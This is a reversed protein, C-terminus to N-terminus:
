DHATMEFWQRLLDALTRPLAEINQIVTYFAFPFSDMYKTFSPKGGAFSVSQLELLSDKATDLAIFALLLGPTDQMARVRRRLSEKEHFHGDAIILVLQQLQCQSSSDARQRADDMLAEISHLMEAVPTDKITNDQDFKFQSVLSPGNVDSFPDGLPHISRVNGTEGFSVVGVEGVELRAMARCILTLAEMAFHGCKREYMSRSDDIALLVQYKRVSPKTRRLWIKDKRFDSAIFPIIKKM